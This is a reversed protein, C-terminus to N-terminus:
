EADWRATTVSTNELPAGFLFRKEQGLGLFACLLVRIVGGHTVVAARRLGGTMLEEIFPLVRRAVDAGNEGNPYPLDTEHRSWETYYGPNELEYQEWTVERLRGFNIEVLEPRPEIPVSIQACAYQATQIARNLTSTYVREPALIKMREGLKKAQAIGKESLRPDLNGPIPAPNDGHRILYIDM